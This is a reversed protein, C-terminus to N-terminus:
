PKLLRVLQRSYLLIFLYERYNLPASNLRQQRIEKVNSQHVRLPINAPIIIAGYLELNVGRPKPEHDSICWPSRTDRIM